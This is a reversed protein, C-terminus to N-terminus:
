TRALPFLELLRESAARDGEITLEGSDLAGHLSSGHWLIAQLTEPSAEITAVPDSPTATRIDAAQRHAAGRVAPRGVRGRLTAGILGDARAPDYLTKLALM